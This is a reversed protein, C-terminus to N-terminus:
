GNANDGEEDGIRQYAIPEGNARMEIVVYADGTRGELMVVGGVACVREIVEGGPGAIVLTVEALGAPLGDPLVRFGIQGKDDAGGIRKVSAGASAGCNLKVLAGDLKADADLVLTAGKGSSLGIGGGSANFSGDLVWASEQTEEGQYASICKAAQLQINPSEIVISDPMMRILSKGCRLSLATGAELAVEKSAHVSSTGHVSTQDFTPSRPNSGILTSRGGDIVSLISGGFHQDISGEVTLEANSGLSARFAGKVDTSMAGGIAATLDTGIVSEFASGVASSYAGAVRSTADAGVETLSPGASAIRLANQSRLSLTERGATDDFVLEHSGGAGDAGSSRTRFGVKEKDAPLSFPSPSTGNYLSGTVIPRDPDGGVFAVLM